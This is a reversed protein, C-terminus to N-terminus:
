RSEGAARQRRRKPAVNPAVNEGDLLRGLRKAADTKPVHHVYRMTTEIAAHGMWAKVDRVTASHDIYGGTPSVFVVDDEGIWLERQGLKDLAQAVEAVLLCQAFRGQSRSKSLAVPSPVASTSWTANGTSTAGGCRPLNGSGCGRSTAPRSRRYSARASLFSQSSPAKRPRRSEVTLPETESV